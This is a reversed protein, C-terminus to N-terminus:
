TSRYVEKYKEPDARILRLEDKKPDDPDGPRAVFLAKVRKNSDEYNESLYSITVFLRHADSPCAAITPNGHWAFDNCTFMVARNFLPSISAMKEYIRPSAASDGRWVELQCGYSENWNSSLYIGLTVQKKQKTVPHLGADVHIDLKDGTNYKHVGWFNRTPDLLLKYGCVASLHEVFEPSELREFLQKLRLPLAHKDRLTYKQEFPNDYRDWQDDPIELIERQLESANELFNDQYVYPFPLTSTYAETSIDFRM